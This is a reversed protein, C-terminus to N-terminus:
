TTFIPEGFSIHLSIALYKTIIVFKIQNCYNWGFFFLSQFDGM